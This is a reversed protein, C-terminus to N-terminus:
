DLLIAASSKLNFVNSVDIAERFFPNCDISSMPVRYKCILDIILRDRKTEHKHLSYTKKGGQRKLAINHESYLHM